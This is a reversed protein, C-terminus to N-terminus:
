ESRMHQRHRCLVFDILTVASQRQQQPQRRDKDKAVTDDADADYDDVDVDDYEDYAYNGM